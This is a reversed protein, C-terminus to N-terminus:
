ILKITNNRHTVQARFHGTVAVRRRIKKGRLGRRCTGLRWRRMYERSGVGERRACGSRLRGQEGEEEEEEEEEEWGEEEKKEEKGVVGKEEEVVVVV